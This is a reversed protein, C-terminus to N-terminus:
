GKEKGNRFAETGSRRLANIKSVPLILGDDLIIEVNEAYFQTGGLKSLREELGERSMPKNVAAEPIDGTVAM